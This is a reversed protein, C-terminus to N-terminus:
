NVDDYILPIDEKIDYLIIVYGYTLANEITLNIEM